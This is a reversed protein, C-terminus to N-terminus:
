DGGAALEVGAAQKPVDGRSLDLILRSNKASSRSEQRYRVADSDIMADAREFTHYMLTRKDRDLRLVDLAAEVDLSATGDTTQARRYLTQVLLAAREAPTGADNSEIQELLATSEELTGIRQRLSAVESETEQRQAELEAVREELYGNKAVVADLKAELEDLRDNSM